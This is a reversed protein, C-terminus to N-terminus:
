KRLRKMGVFVAGLGILAMIILLANSVPQGLGFFGTPQATNENPLVNLGTAPSVTTTNEQQPTQGTQPAPNTQEEGVQEPGPQEVSQPQEAALATCDIVQVVQAQSATSGVNARLRYSGEESPAFSAAGQENTSLRAVVSNGSTVVVNAGNLPNGNRAVNVTMDQNVCNGAVNLSLAAFGGGGGGGGGGSNSEPGPAPPAPSVPAANITLQKSANSTIGFPTSVSATITYTGIAVGTPTFSYSFDGAGNTNVTVNGSPLALTVPGITAPPLIAGDDLTVKGNVTVSNDQNVTESSLSMQIIYSLNLFFEARPDNTVTNSANDKAEIQVFYTGDPFNPTTDYELIYIKEEDESQTMPFPNLGDANEITATVQSIGSIPDSVLAKITITNGRIKPDAPLFEINQIVPARRDISVTQEKPSEQNGALDIARYIVSTSGENSIEFECPNQCDIWSSAGALPDTVLYYQIKDVWSPFLDQATIKVQVNGNYWQNEAPPQSNLTISSTPATTDVMIQVAQQLNQNGARDVAYYYVRTIGDDLFDLQCPNECSIWESLSGGPSFSWTKYMISGVGSGRDEGNITLNVPSVFWNNQGNPSEPNLTFSASPSVTDVMFSTYKTDPPTPSSYHCTASVQHIGDSLGAIPVIAVFTQQQGFSSGDSTMANLSGGDLSYSAGNIGPGDCTVSLLPDTNTISPTITLNSIEALASNALFLVLSIFLISKLLNKM